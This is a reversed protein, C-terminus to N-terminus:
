RALWGGDVPIIAGNLYNAAQSALFVATGGVDSPEGWRGAPIRGLIEASRVPDDRLQQTNDTAMYGPAIANININKSAWENALLRTIGAIGSKSATYSPVRIGGQFSLMSAINIIKGHGQDIMKRGAAQSMFFASKINVNMVADWDAESFNVAVPGISYTTCPSFPESTGSFTGNKEVQIQIDSLVCHANGVAYNSALSLQGQLDLQVDQDGDSAKFSGAIQHIELIGANLSSTLKTDNPTYPLLDGLIIGESIRADQLTLPLDSISAPLNDQGILRVEFDFRPDLHTSGNESKRAV